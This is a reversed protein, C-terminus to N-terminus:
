ALREAMSQMVKWAITPNGEVVVRFDAPSLGYCHLDSTATITATRDSGMLLAIEGFYEGAGFTAQSQGQVTVDAEGSEVVFFGDAPGGEMAVVEGALFTREWMSSAVLELESEDLDAFLPVVALVDISPGPVGLNL